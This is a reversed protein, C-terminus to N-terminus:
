LGRNTNMSDGLSPEVSVVARHSSQHYHHHRNLEMDPTLKSVDVTASSRAAEKKQQRSRGGKWRKQLYTQSSMEELRSLTRDFAFVEDYHSAAKDKRSVVRVVPDQQEQPSAPTFIECIPTKTQLILKVQSEYMADVFIIFRRIWNM